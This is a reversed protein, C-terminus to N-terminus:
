PNSVPHAPHVTSAAARFCHRFPRLDRCPALAPEPASVAAALEVLAAAAHEIPGAQGAVDDGEHHEATQAVAEGQPIQALDQKQPTDFCAVLGDPVPFRFQQRDHALFEAFASVSLPVARTGAPVHVLGIQLDPALPDGQIARDVPVPVQDVGRQTLM